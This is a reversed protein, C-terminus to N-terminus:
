FAAPAALILPATGAIGGAVEGATTAYPHDARMQADYDRARAVEDSYRSDNTAARVAADARDIGSLLYPGVVPVGDVLGRAAANLAGGSRGGRMLEAAEPSGAVPAEDWWNKSPAAKVESALPAEDWWNSM